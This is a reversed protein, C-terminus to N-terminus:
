RYMEEILVSFKKEVIRRRIKLTATLAENEISFLEPLLTFRVVREYSPLDAQLRDIRLKMFDIVAKERVLIEADDVKEGLLGFQNRLRSVSPVILASIYKRNDGIVVAQEIFNDDCLLLEVKQPSIYKGGSTKFIDNIRDIMLLDGSETLKGTDGTHYWGDTLVKATEGPKRYYGSFVTSGKVLIEGESTFDVTIGPMITGTSYFDYVDSRFCSVTATTETAGYGYNVFIGAAHFFQLLEPRIAAGACPMFRIRGGFVKRLTKLVLMDAMGKRIQIGAPPVSNQKLYESHQKGINIAWEFIKRKYGPWKSEETRIGEYTKEFFRPVTCMVTPRVEPLVDIVLKPNELYVNVAGRNLIYYTWAREFVHSLPLFCLSVDSRSVELREDHIKMCYMFNNHTLMVGKPDGTTGSTYIITALDGSDAKELQKAILDSYKSDNGLLLFQDWTCFKEAESVLSPDLGVVMRLNEDKEALKLAREKQEDNGVFILGMGTEDVIYKLQNFSSTGFFPVVVGGTQLIGLDAITWEPKNDSYIGIKSETTYGLSLLACSVKNVMELLTEWSIGMYIGSSKDKYRLVESKGFQEARERVM